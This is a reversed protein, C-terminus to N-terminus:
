VSVHIRTDSLADISLEGRPAIDDHAHTLPNLGRSDDEVLGLLRVNDPRVVFSDLFIFSLSLLEWQIAHGADFDRQGHIAQTLLEVGLLLNVSLVALGDQHVM